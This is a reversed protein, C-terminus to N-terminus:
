GRRNACGACNRKEGLRALHAMAKLGYKGKNTLTSVWFQAVDGCFSPQQAQITIMSLFNNKVVNPLTSM